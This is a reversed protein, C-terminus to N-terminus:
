GEAPPTAAWASGSRLRAQGYAFLAQMYAPDFPVDYPMDFDDGVFALNFGIGAARARLWIRTVDYGGSAQTMTSVTAALVSITRRATMERRPRLRGNRVVWIRTPARTQERSRQAFAVREPFLFLQAVAGGDVHMEQFRRGEAEVDFMVPPFVGPISASALLVRRALDLAGPAGSRAIAGMNWVVGRRADLDTTGILLVRGAEYATAIEALMAEDLFRAITAALPASDGVADDLLAATWQRWALVRSMDITTYVERLEADRAPGLFAFPAALAGTSVGTVVRFEPRTGQRTWETLLGAGFAGDEGGGSLVLVDAPQDPRGAARGAAARAQQDGLWRLLEADEEDAYFRAGPICPIVARTALAEPVAPLRPLGACASLASAAGLGLLRRRGASL